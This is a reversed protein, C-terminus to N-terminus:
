PRAWPPVEVPPDPPGVAGNTTVAGEAWYVHPLYCHGGPRDIIQLHLGSRAVQRRVWAIADAHSPCQGPAAVIAVELRRERNLEDLLSAPAPEDGSADCTAGFVVVPIPSRDGDFVCLSHPTTTLPRDRVVDNGSVCEDILDAETMAQALPFDSAFTEAAPYALSLSRYDCVVTEANLSPRWGAISVDAESRYHHELVAALHPDPALRSAAAAVGTSLAAVGVIAVAVRKVSVLRKTRAGSTGSAGSLIAHLEAEVAIAETLLARQRAVESPSPTRTAPELRQVLDLDIDM